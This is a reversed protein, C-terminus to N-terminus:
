AAPHDLRAPPPDEPPLEQCVVKLTHDLTSVPLPAGPCSRLRRESVGTQHQKEKKQHNQQQLLYGADIRRKTTAIAEASEWDQSARFPNFSNAGASAIQLLRGDRVAESPFILVEVVRCSVSM